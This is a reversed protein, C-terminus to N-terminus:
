TPLPSGFEWVVKIQDNDDYEVFLNFRIDKPTGDDLTVRDIQHYMVIRGESHMTQPLVEWSKFGSRFGNVAEFFAERGNFGGDEQGGNWVVDPAILRELTERDDETVARCVEGQLAKLDAAM